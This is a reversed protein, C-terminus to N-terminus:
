YSFIFDALAEEYDLKGSKIASDYDAMKQKEAPSKVLASLFNFLMAPDGGKILLEELIRLREGIERSNRLYNLASFIDVPLFADIHNKLVEETIKKENVGNSAPRGLTGMAGGEAPRSRVPNLLSLKDLETILGWSDDKYFGALLDRSKKDLILNRINAEELIFKNLGLGILASFNQSQVPKELLFKFDKNPAKDESIILVLEKHKLIEKLLIIYEKQDEPILSSGGGIIGLKFDDFLSNSKIFDKLEDFQGNESLDFSEVTFKSHKQKYEFLIEKLKSNKRYSDKGYLFIIM